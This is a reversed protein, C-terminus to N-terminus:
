FRFISFEFSEFEFGLSYVRFGVGLVEVRCGVGWIGFATCGQALSVSQSM